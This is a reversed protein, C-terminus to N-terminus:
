DAAGEMVFNVQFARDSPHDKRMIQFGGQQKINLLLQTFLTAEPDTGDDQQGSAKFRSAAHRDVRIDPRYHNGNQPSLSYDFLQKEYLIFSNSYLALNQLESDSASEALIRREEPSLWGFYASMYKQIIMQVYGAVIHQESSEDSQFEKSISSGSRMAKQVRHLFEPSYHKNLLKLGAEDMKQEPFVQDFLKKFNRTALDKM